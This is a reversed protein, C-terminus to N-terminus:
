ASEDKKDIYQWDKWKSKPSKFRTYAQNYDINFKILVENISNYIVGDIKFRQTTIEKSPQDSYRWNNFKGTLSVIRAYVTAKHLGLKNAAEAISKYVIGDITVSKEIWPLKRNTRMASMLKITSSNHKKGTHAAAIKSGKTAKIIRKDDEKKWNNCIRKIIENINIDKM